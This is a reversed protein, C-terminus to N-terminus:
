WPELETVDADDLEVDAQKALAERTRDVVVITHEHKSEVNQKPKGYAEALLDKVAQLQVRYDPDSTGAQLAGEYVAFIKARLEPTEILERLLERVERATGSGAGNKAHSREVSAPRRGGMRGIESPDLGGPAHFACHKGDFLVTSKCPNGDKTTGKCTPKTPTLADSATPNDQAESMARRRRLRSNRRKL